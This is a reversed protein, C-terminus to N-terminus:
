GVALNRGKWLLYPYGESTTNQSYKYIRGIRDMWLGRSSCDGWPSLSGFNLVLYIVVVILRFCHMWAM